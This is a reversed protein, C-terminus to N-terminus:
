DAAANAIRPLYLRITTGQGEVSEARISGGARTIIQDVIALGLGTGNVGKTTFFPKFINACTQANMGIGTDIISIRVFTGTEGDHDTLDADEIRITVDGGDPMADRANLILNLLTRELQTADMFARSVPRDTDLTLRINAGLLVRFMAALSEISRRVETVRPSVPSDQGFTMIEQTLKSGRQLIDVIRQAYRDADLPLDPVRRVLDAFGTAAGLIGRFDHASGAAMRGVAEMRHLEMPQHEYATLASQAHQSENEQYIRAINDAVASAFDADAGSWNRVAGVHEHCVVGVVKGQVYIPADLMSSIGLPELYSTRLEQTIELNRADDAPLARHSHLAAFYAPFDQEHLVVGQFLEHSSRQFLYRCRLAHGEDVLVWVGVRDVDLAASVLEALELWVARLTAGEGVHLRALQLRAQEFRQTQQFQLDSDIADQPHMGPAVM